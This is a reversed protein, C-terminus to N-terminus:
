LSRTSGGDIDIICGQIFDAKDSGLYATMYGIEEPQGVRATRSSSLLFRMASERDLSHDRMTREINRTFRDTEILGPNIANVRVSDTIGIDAMAKTFNLIAVNVSGGITFEASGARSGVGVINVINGNVRKLHPWAARTMRVYGHFKLAFGDLFDEDTLTFFDARKTAGANNVLMDLRGFSGTATKVAEIAGEATRLDAAHVVTRVNAIGRVTAAVENLKELDRAVLCLDMGERALEQAIAAGIGRSAGTVIAVKGSLGLEMIANKEQAHEVIMGPNAL